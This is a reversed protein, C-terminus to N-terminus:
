HELPERKYSVAAIEELSVISDFFSKEKLKILV